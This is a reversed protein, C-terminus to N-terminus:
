CKTIALWARVHTTMIGPAHVSHCQFRASCEGTAIANRNGGCKHCLCGVLIILRLLIAAAGEPKASGMRVAHPPGLLACTEIVVCAERMHLTCLTGKQRLSPRVIVNNVKILM